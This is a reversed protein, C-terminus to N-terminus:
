DVIDLPVGLQGLEWGIQEPGSALVTKMGLGRAARLNEPSDDIMVVAPADLALYDLVARFSEPEPKRVGMEYSVFIREFHRIADALRPRWVADHAANTNTLAVLRLHPALRALLEAIGPIQERLLSNWGDLFDEFALPRGLLKLAHAHYEHIDMQGREMLQYRTDQRFPDIIEEARAGLARAWHRVIAEVSVEIVVGGLDFVAAQIHADGKM